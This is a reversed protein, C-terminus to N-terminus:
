EERGALIDNVARELERRWVMADQNDIPQNGLVFIEMPDLSSIERNSFDDYQPLVYDIM